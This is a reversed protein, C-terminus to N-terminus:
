ATVVKLSLSRVRPDNALEIAPSWSPSGVALTRRGYEAIALSDVLGLHPKLGRSELPTLRQRPFLRKIAELTRSKADSAKTGSHIVKAWTRPHVLTYPIRLGVMLGELQGCGHGYNFMSVAGNKPMAQGKELFVHMVPDEKLWEELLDALQYIEPMPVLNLVEGDLTMRCLAGSKGPDIGLVKM